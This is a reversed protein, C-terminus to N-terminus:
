PWSPSPVVKAVDGSWFPVSLRTGTVTTKSALASGLMTSGCVCVPDDRDGGALEVGAGAEGAAAGAAPTGVAAPLQAVRDRRLSVLGMRYRDVADRASSGHGGTAEM